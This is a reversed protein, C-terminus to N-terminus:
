HVSESSTNKLGPFKFLQFGEITNIAKHIEYQCLMSEHHGYCTKGKPDDKYLEKLLPLAKESNLQGLTWLATHTKEVMPANEDLLMSILADEPTGQYVETATTIHEMVSQRMMSRVIILFALLLVFGIIGIIKILRKM